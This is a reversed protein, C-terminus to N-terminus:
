LPGSGAKNYTWHGIACAVRWIELSVDAMHGALLGTMQRWTASSAAVVWLGLGLLNLCYIMAYSFLRGCERIDTQHTLLTTVTFTLHFGWTLGVLGMWWLHGREVDFFLRLLLYAAIAMVTYLPFFYPALTILFNTRSLTVSGGQSSVKMRSVRAGMLTGWLAHTLEHALVYTRVPRPITFFLILWLTYGGLFALAAPPLLLPSPQLSRVLSVMTQTVALCVPLLLLGVLFRVLRNIV